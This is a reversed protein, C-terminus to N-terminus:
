IFYGHSNLVVEDNFKEPIKIEKNNILSQIIRNYRMQSCLGCSPHGSLMTQTLNNIVEMHRESGWLKNFGSCSKIQGVAYKNYNHGVFQTCPVVYGEPDIVSRLGLEHVWCKEVTIDELSESIQSAMKPKILSMVNSRNGYNEIQKRHSLIYEKVMQSGKASISLNGEGISQEYDASKRMSVFDIGIDGLFLDLLNGIDKANNEVIVTRISISPTTKKGRENIVNRIAGIVKPFVDRQTLGKYTQSNSGHLSIQGYLFNELLSQRMEPNSLMLGNSVLAQHTGSEKIRKYMSQLHEISEKRKRQENLWFTPEGGGGWVVAGVDGETIVKEISDLTSDPM